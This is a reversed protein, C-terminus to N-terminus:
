GRLLRSDVRGGLRGARNVADLVGLSVEDQTLYGGPYVNITINETREREQVASAGLSRADTGAGAGAGAKDGGGGGFAGIGAGVAGAVGAVAGWAAAAAFHQPAAVYDQRALASIGRAIETVAQVISEITLAKIVGKVMEEAAEVFSKSGDLWAGLAKEFAGTMTEGVTDAINNGVAVLSREMLRGQSIMGRGARQAATNAADWAMRVEELSQPMTQEFVAAADAAENALERQAEALERARELAARHESDLDVTGVRAQEGGIVDTRGATAESLLSATTEARQRDSFEREKRERRERAERAQEARARQADTYSALDRLEEQWEQELREQEAERTAGIEREAITRRESAAAQDAEAAAIQERRRIEEDLLRVRELARQRDAEAARRLDETRGEGRGGERNIRNVRRSVDSAELAFEQAQQTFLDRQQEIVERPIQGLIAPAFQRDTLAGQIDAQLRQAQLAESLREVEERQARAAEAADHHRSALQAIVPLAGLLAGVLVGGPGFTAGMAAGQAVTQALAGVLGAARSGTGAGLASSLSGVAGAASAVNGAMQQFTAGSRTAATGVNALSSAATRAAGATRQSSEQASRAVGRQAVDVKQLERVAADVGTAAVGLELDAM